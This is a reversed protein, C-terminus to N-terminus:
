VMKESRSDDEVVEQDPKEEGDEVIVVPTEPAPLAQHHPMHNNEPEREPAAPGEWDLRPSHLPPTPPETAASAQQQAAKEKRARRRVLAMQLVALGLGGVIVVVIQWGRLSDTFLWRATLVIISISTGIIVGDIVNTRM